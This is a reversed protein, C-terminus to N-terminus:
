TFRGGSRIDAGLPFEPSEKTSVTRHLFHFVSYSCPKDLMEVTVKIRKKCFYLRQKCCVAPGYNYQLAFIFVAIVAVILFLGATNLPCNGGGGSYVNRQKCRVTRTIGVKGVARHLAAQRGKIEAVPNFLIKGAM